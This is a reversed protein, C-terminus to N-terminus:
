YDYDICEDAEDYYEGDYGKAMLKWYCDMCVLRYTIGHCDHTFQMDDRPVERECCQCHRMNESM